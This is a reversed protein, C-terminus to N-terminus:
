DSKGEPWPMEGLLSELEEAEGELDMKVETFKSLGFDIFFFQSNLGDRKVTINHPRIDGHLVGLRHIASLAARIKDRDSADLHEKRLDAGIFDTVLIMEMGSAIGAVRLSPIWHGQLKQLTQYVRAEHELEHVVPRQNWIDAKKVVVDENTWTAKFTRAGEGQTILKMNKFAPIIVTKPEQKTLRTRKTGRSQTRVRSRTM